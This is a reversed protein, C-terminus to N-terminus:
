AHKLAEAKLKLDKNTENFDDIKKIKVDIHIEHERIIKSLDEM